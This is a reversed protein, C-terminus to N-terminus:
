AGTEGAQETDDSRRRVAWFLGTGLVGVLLVGAVGAIGGSLRENDVGKTSYGAFPGEATPSAEEHDLFGAKEAVHNLGDPHASAYYSAGGAVLIAVLLGALLFTRTRM